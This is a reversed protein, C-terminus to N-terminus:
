GRAARKRARVPRGLPAELCGALAEMWGAWMADFEILTGDKDFVVLDISALVPHLRDRTM